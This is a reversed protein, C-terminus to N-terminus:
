RMLTISREQSRRNLLKLNSKPVFQLISDPALTRIGKESRLKKKITFPCRIENDGKRDNIEIDLPCLNASCFIFRPCKKINELNKNM